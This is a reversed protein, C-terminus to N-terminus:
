ANMDLCASSFLSCPWPGHQLAAKAKLCVRLFEAHVPTQVLACLWTLLSSCLRCGKTWKISRHNGGGLGMWGRCLTGCPVSGVHKAIDNWKAIENKVQLPVLLMRARTREVPQEFPCGSQRLQHTAIFATTHHLFFRFLPIM